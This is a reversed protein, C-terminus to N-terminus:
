LAAPVSKVEAVQSLTVRALLEDKHPIIRPNHPFGTFDVKPDENLLEEKVYKFIERPMNVDTVQVTQYTKPFLILRRDSATLNSIETLGADESFSYFPTFIGDDLDDESRDNAYLTASLRYTLGLEGPSFAMNFRLSIKRCPVPAPAPQGPLRLGSELVVNEIPGVTIALNQIQAM